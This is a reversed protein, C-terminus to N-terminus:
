RQVAMLVYSALIQTPSWPCLAAVRPAGECTLCVQLLDLPVVLTTRYQPFACCKVFRSHASHINTHKYSMASVNRHPTAFGKLLLPTSKGLFPCVATVETRRM